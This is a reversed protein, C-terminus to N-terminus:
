EQVSVDNQKAKKENKDAQIENLREQERNKSDQIENLRAQEQNRAAQDRNKQSQIENLLTQEKNRGEQEENRKVQIQNQKAQDHNKQSQIENLRAQDKNRVEQDENKRVHTQNAQDRIAQAQDIKAQIQDRMGDQQDLIAQARDRIAQAEDKKAQERDRDEQLKEAAPDETRARHDQALVEVPPTREVTAIASARDVAGKEAVIQVSDDASVMAPEEGVPRFARTVSIKRINVNQAMKGKRLNGTNVATQGVGSRAKVINDRIHHSGTIGATAMMAMLLVAAAMFSTKESFGFERHKNSIIRSVRNLLHNKKGPFGVQYRSGYLAHEKFSILAEVFERRNKTQALAIDDCCNEREDRLVSSIWLLGPNFCFITETITQLFNVVYDYRRIHALEHLLIAEVQGAPLGAILGMPVLIIPKLHGIVMPMKVYGSELLRVARNLPLKQCLEDVKGAWYESPQYVFRHRARHIFVLSSMLRVLRMMFLLLWVLVIFPSNASFWYICDNAFQRLGDASLEFFLLRARDPGSIAGAIGPAPSKSWEWAFTFICGAIFFLLQILLLNYRIVSTSRKTLALIFGSLMALLLGQWLSHLLMWSFAQIFHQATTIVAPQLYM